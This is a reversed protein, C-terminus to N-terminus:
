RLEPYETSNAILTRYNQPKDLEALVKTGVKLYTGNLMVFKDKRLFLYEGEFEIHEETESTSMKAYGDDSILFTDTVENSKVTFGTALVDADTSVSIPNIKPFYETNPKMPFLIVNLVAPLERKTHFTLKNDDLKGVLNTNDTAGIYINSHGSERTWAQGIDQDIHATNLHFIQELSHEGVGLVTDHLIYYEGKIYFISRKHHYNSGKHWGEVYDYVSTTIWRTDPDPVSDSETLKRKGDILVVNHAESSKSSPEANIKSLDHTILQRGHAFVVFSLKDEYGQKGLPGCDFCLYQADPQWSDRMVYYGTYPLAHSLVQPKSDKLYSNTINRLEVVGANDLCNAGFPPFSKDPQCIYICAKILKELLAQLEDVCEFQWNEKVRDFVNLFRSFDTIAEVQSRLLIDVHFGDPYFFTNVIWKYRRSALTLLQSSIRFEPFLIAAVGIEATALIPPTPYISLKLLSELYLKSVNITDTKALYPLGDFHKMYEGRYTTYASMATSIDGMMVVSQVDELRESELNLYHFFMEDSLPFNSENHYTFNHNLVTNYCKIASGLIPLNLTSALLFASEIPQIIHTDSPTPSVETLNAAIRGFGALRWLESQPLGSCVSGVLALVSGAALRERATPAEPYTYLYEIHELLIKALPEWATEYLTEHTAIGLAEIVRAAVSELRWAPHRDVYEIPTPNTEVFTLLEEFDAIPEFQDIIPIEQKALKSALLTVHESQVTSFEDISM